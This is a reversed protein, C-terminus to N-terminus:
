RTPGNSSVRMLESFNSNYVGFGDTGDALGSMFMVWPHATTSIGFVGTASWPSSDLYMNGATGDHM